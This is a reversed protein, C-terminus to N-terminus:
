SLKGGYEKLKEGVTCQSICFRHAQRRGKEQKIQRHLFCGDCYIGIISEVNELVVKREAEKM